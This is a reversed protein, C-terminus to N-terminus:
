QSLIAHQQQAPPMCAASDTASQCVLLKSLKTVAGRIRRIATSLHLLLLLRRPRHRAESGVHVLRHEADVLADLAEIEALRLIDDGSATYVVGETYLQVLHQKYHSKVPVM